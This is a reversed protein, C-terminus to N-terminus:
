CDRLVNTSVDQGCTSGLGNIAFQAISATQSWRSATIIPSIGLSSILMGGRHELVVITLMINGAHTQIRNLLSIIAGSDPGCTLNKHADYESLNVSNDDFLKLRSISLSQYRVM